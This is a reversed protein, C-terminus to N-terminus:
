GHLIPWRTELQDKKITILDYLGYGQLGHPSEFRVSWKGGYLFCTQQMNKDWFPFIDKIFEITPIM